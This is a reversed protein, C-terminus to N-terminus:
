FVTIYHSPISVELRAGLHYGRHNARRLRSIFDINRNGVVISLSRLRNIVNMTNFYLVVSDFYLMTM